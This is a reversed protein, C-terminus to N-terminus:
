PNLHSYQNCIENPYDHRKKECAVFNNPNIRSIVNEMEVLSPKSISYKAKALDLSSHAETAQFETVIM